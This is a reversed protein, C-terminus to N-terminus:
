MSVLLGRQAPRLSVDPCVTAADTLLLQMASLTSHLIQASRMWEHWLVHFQNCPLDHTVTLVTDPVAYLVAALLSGPGLPWM